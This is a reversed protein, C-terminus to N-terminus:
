EFNKNEEYHEEKMNLILMVNNRKEVDTLKRKDVFM